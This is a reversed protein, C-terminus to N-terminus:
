NQLLKYRKMMIVYLWSFCPSKSSFLSQTLRSTFTTQSLICASGFIINSTDLSRSGTSYNGMKGYPFGHALCRFNSYPFHCLATIHRHYFNSCSLDYHAATNECLCPRPCLPALLGHGRRKWVLSKPGWLSYSFQQFQVVYLTSLFFRWWLDYWFHLQSITGCNNGHWQQHTQRIWLKVSPNISLPARM